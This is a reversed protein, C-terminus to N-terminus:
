KGCGCGKPQVNVNNMQNNLNINNLNVNNMQNNLNTNDINSEDVEKQENIISQLIEYLGRPWHGVSSEFNESSVRAENKLKSVEDNIITSCKSGYAISFIVIFLIIVVTLITAVVWNFLGVLCFAWIITILTLGVLISVYLINASTLALQADKIITANNDLHSQSYGTANVFTQYALKINESSLEYKSKLLDIIDYIQNDFESSEITINDIDYLPIPPGGLIIDSM